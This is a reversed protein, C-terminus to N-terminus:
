LLGLVALALYGGGVAFTAVLVTLCIADAVDTWKM